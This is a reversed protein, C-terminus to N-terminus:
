FYLSAQDVRGVRREVARDTGRRPVPPSSAGGWAASCFSSVICWIALRWPSVWRPMGLKWSVTPWVLVQGAVRRAPWCPCIRPLCLWNRSVAIPRLTTVKRTTRILDRELWSEYWVHAGTTVSWWLGPLHRQGRAWRFERAPMFTEPRLGPWAAPLESHEGGDADLYCLEFEPDAEGTGAEEDQGM